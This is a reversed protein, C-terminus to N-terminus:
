VEERDLHARNNNESELSVSISGNHCRCRKIKKIIAKAIALILAASNVVLLSVIVPDM